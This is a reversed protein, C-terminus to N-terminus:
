THLYFLGHLPKAHVIHLSYFFMILERWYPNNELNPSFPLHYTLILKKSEYPKSPTQSIIWGVLFLQIWVPPWLKKEWFIHPINVILLCQEQGKPSCRHGIFFRKGQLSVNWHVPLQPLELFFRRCGYYSELGPMLVQPCCDSAPVRHGEDFCLPRLIWELAMKEEVDKLAQNMIHVNSITTSPLFSLSFPSFSAPLRHSKLIDSFIGSTASLVHPICGAPTTGAKQVWKFHFAFM